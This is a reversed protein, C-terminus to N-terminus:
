DLRCLEGLRGAEHLRRYADLDAPTDVELWGGATWAVGIAVARDILTQIFDTMYMKRFAVSDGGLEEELADYIRLVDGHIPARFKLLGMYQGEIDDMVTPKRGLECLLGDPGLKFSEADSLPDEMRLQWLSLWNRDAAVVVDGAHMILTHLVRPEYVIDGYSVIVDASGDFLHRACMMTSVMNTTEYYPNVIVPKGYAHLQEARYGGLLSVDTIGTAAFLALQRALLPKGLLPVLCKPQGTTYPQLRSGTGAALIMARPHEM